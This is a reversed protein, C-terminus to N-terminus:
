RPENIGSAPELTEFASVSKSMAAYTEANASPSDPKHTLVVLLYTLYNGFAIQEVVLLNKLRADREFFNAVTRKIGDDHESLWRLAWTATMLTLVRDLKVPSTDVQYKTQAAALTVSEREKPALRSGFKGMLYGMRFGDSVMVDDAESFNGLIREILTPDGSAMYAGILLDNEAPNSPSRTTALTIIQSSDLKQLLTALQNSVAYTRAENFLGARYLAQLYVSRVYDSHENELLRKTDNSSRFLQALFGIITSPDGGSTPIQRLSSVIKEVCGSAQTRYFDSMCNMDAADASGSQAMLVMGVINLFKRM